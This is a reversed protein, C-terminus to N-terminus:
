LWDVLLALMTLHQDKARLTHLGARAARVAASSLRRLKVIVHKVHVSKGKNKQPTQLALPSAFRRSCVGDNLDALRM